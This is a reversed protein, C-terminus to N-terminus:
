VVVELDVINEVSDSLLYREAIRVEHPIGARKHHVIDLRGDHM